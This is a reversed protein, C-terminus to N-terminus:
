LSFSPSDLPSDGRAGATRLGTVKEVDERGLKQWAEMPVAVIKSVGLEHAKVQFNHSTEVHLIPPIRLHPTCFIAPHNKYPFFRNFHILVQPVGM